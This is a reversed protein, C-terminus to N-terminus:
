LKEIKIISYPPINEYTYYAKVYPVFKPDEHLKINNLTKVDIKLIVFDKLEKFDIFDYCDDV